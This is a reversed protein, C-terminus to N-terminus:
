SASAKVDNVLDTTAAEDVGSDVGGAQDQRHPRQRWVSLRQSEGCAGIRFHTM